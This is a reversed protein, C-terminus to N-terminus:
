GAYPSLTIPVPGTATSRNKMAYPHTRNSHMEWRNMEPLAPRALTM